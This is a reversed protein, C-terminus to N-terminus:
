GCHIRFYAWLDSRRPVAVFKNSVSTNLLSWPSLCVWCDWYHLVSSKGGGVDIRCSAKNLYQVTQFPPRDCLSFCNLEEVFNTLVMHFSGIPLFLLLGDRVEHLLVSLMSTSVWHIQCERSPPDCNWRPLNAFRSPRHRETPSISNRTWNVVFFCQNQSSLLMLMLNIM